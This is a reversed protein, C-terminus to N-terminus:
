KPLEVPFGLESVKDAVLNLTVIDIFVVGKDFEISPGHFLEDVFRVRDTMTVDGTKQKRCKGVIAELRDHSIKPLVSDKEKPFNYLLLM